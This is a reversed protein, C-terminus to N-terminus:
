SLLSHLLTFPMHAKLKLFTGKFLDNFANIIPDGESHWHTHLSQMPIGEYRISAHKGRLGITLKSCVAPPPISAQFMRWWGFNVQIPFKYLGKGAAEAVNELAAQEFFRSSYGAEVWVELLRPDNMWIYGANYVGFRALDSRCIYHPSLAITTAPPIAPLSALHTIDADMFWVGAGNVLQPQSDFIWTLANAKEYTYDKFLNDYKVGPLKEMEARRKGKYQDMCLKTHITGKFRVTDISTGSDTLVYLIANPHWAELSSCFIQFDQLAESGTVILGIHPVSEM